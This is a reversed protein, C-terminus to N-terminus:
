AWTSLMPCPMDTLVIAYGLRGEWYGGLSYVAGSRNGREAVDVFLRKMLNPFEYLRLSSDIRISQSAGDSTCSANKGRNTLLSGFLDRRRWRLPFPLTSAISRTFVPAVRYESCIIVGLRRECHRAQTVEHRGVM